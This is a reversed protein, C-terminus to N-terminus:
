SLYVTVWSSKLKRGSWIRDSFRESVSIIGRLSLFNQSPFSKKPDNWCWSTAYMESGVQRMFKLVLKNCLNWFWSTAYTLWCTLWASVSKKGTVNKIIKERSSFRKINSRSRTNTAEVIRIFFRFGRAQLSTHLLHFFIRSKLNDKDGSINLFM